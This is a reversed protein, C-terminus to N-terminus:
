PKRAPPITSLNKDTQANERAATGGKNDLVSRLHNPVTIKPPGSPGNQNGRLEDDLRSQVAAADSKIAKSEM